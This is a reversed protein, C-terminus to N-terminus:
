ESPLLGRMLGCASTTSESSSVMTSTGEGEEVDRDEASRVRDTTSSLAADRIDKWRVREGGFVDCLGARRDM